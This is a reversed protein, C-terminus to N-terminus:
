SCRFTHPNPEGPRRLGIQLLNVCVDAIVVRRSSRAEYRTEDLARSRQYDRVADDTLEGFDGDVELNCGLLQNNLDDQLEDVYIGSDGQSGAARGRGARPGRCGGAILGGDPGGM